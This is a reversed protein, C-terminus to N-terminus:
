TSNIHCVHLDSVKRAKRAIREVADEGILPLYDELQAFRPSATM